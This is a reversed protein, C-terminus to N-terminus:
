FYFSIFFLFFEIWNTRLSAQATARRIFKPLSRLLALQKNFIITSHAVRATHPVLPDYWRNILKLSVTFLLLKLMRREKWALCIVYVRNYRVSFRIMQYSM